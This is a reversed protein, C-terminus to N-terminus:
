VYRSTGAMIRSLNCGDVLGHFSSPSIVPESGGGRNGAFYKQLLTSVEPASRCDYESGGHGSARIFLVSEKLEAFCM